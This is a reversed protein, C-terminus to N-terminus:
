LFKFAIYIYRGNHARPMHPDMTWPKSTGITGSLTTGHHSYKSVCYITIM